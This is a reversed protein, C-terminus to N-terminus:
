STRHSFVENSGAEVTSDVSVYQPISQREDRGIRRFQRLCEHAVERDVFATVLGYALLGLAGGLLLAAWSSMATDIM